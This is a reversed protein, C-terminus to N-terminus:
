DCNLCGGGTWGVRGDGCGVDSASCDCGMGLDWMDWNLCSDAPGMKREKCCWTLGLIMGMEALALRPALYNFTPLSAHLDATSIPYSVLAWVNAVQAAFYKFGKGNLRASAAGMSSQMFLALADTLDFAARLRNSSDSRLGLRGWYTSHASLGTM